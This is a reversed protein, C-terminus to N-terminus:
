WKFGKPKHSGCATLLRKELEEVRIEDVNTIEMTVHIHGAKLNDITSNISNRLVGLDRRRLPKVNEGVFPLQVFYTRQTEVSEDKDISQVAFIPLQVKTSDLASKVDELGNVGVTKIVAAGNEWEFVISKTDEKNSFLSKITEEISSM